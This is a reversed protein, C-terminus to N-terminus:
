QTSIIEINRERCEDETPTQWLSNALNFVEDPVTMKYTGSQQANREQVRQRRLELPTDIVFLRLENEIGDVRRYFKERDARQILGLELIVSTESNLLEITVNWIQEICRSKREAYWPMVNEIPRDPSFLTVMWEDLNLHPAKHHLSLNAAFTSKGAGVPGEILYITANIAEEMALLTQLRPQVHLHLHL